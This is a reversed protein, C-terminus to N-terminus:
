ETYASGPSVAGAIRSVAADLAATVSETDTSESDYVFATGGRRMGCFDFIGTEVQTAFAQTYGHREFSGAATGATALVHVTLRGLKPVLRGATDFDFAWGAIFVRDFWGKLLAPMSWWYIPFVLVLDSVHDLRDQEAVVDAAPAGRGLYLRRDKLTFRPDFGEQALHGITTTEHGLADRLRTAAHDTLSETDPHATIILTSM